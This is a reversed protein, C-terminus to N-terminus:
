DGRSATFLRKIKYHAFKFCCPWNYAEMTLFIANCKQFLAFQCSCKGHSNYLGIMLQAIGSLLSGGGISSMPIGYKKKWWKANSDMGKEAIKCQFGYKKRCHEQFEQSKNAAPKPFESVKRIHNKSNWVIELESSCSPTYLLNSNWVRKTM